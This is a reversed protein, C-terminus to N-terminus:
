GSCVVQVVAAYTQRLSLLLGAAAAGHHGCLNGRDFLVLSLSLLEADLSNVATAVAAASSQTCLLCAEGAHEPRVKFGALGPADKGQHIAWVFHTQLAWMHYEARELPSPTKEVVSTAEDRGAEGAEGPALQGRGLLISM